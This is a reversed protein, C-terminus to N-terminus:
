KFVAVNKAITNACENVNFPPIKYLSLGLQEIARLKELKIAAIFRHGSITATGRSPLAM